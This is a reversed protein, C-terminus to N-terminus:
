LLEIISTWITFINSWTKSTNPYIPPPKNDNHKTGWITFATLVFDIKKEKNLNNIKNNFNSNLLKTDVIFAKKNLYNIVKKKFDINKLAIRRVDGLSLIGIVKNKETYVGVPYYNEDDKLKNIKNIFQFISDEKNIICPEYFKIM